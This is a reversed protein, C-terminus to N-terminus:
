IDGRLKSWLLGIGEYVTRETKEFAFGDPYLFDPRFRNSKTYFHGTPAPVPDMGQKRFLAMSRPMHSASTVLVFKETGVLKKINLAQEKTDRSVPELIIDENGVGCIEAFQAMVEAESETNFVPGGSLLLRSGPNAAHVRIGEMLRTLTSKGLRSTIPVDPDSVVGGGLVVVYAPEFAADIEESYTEYRRELLRVLNNSTLDFSALLLLCTGATALIRGAKARKTFWLLWLGSLLLMATMPMPFFLPAIIKKLLFMVPEVHM